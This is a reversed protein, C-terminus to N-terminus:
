RHFVLGKEDAFMMQRYKLNNKSLKSAAVEEELLYLKQDWFTYGQTPSKNNSFVMVCLSDVAIAILAGNGAYTMPIKNLLGLIGLTIISTCFLSSGVLTLIHDNRTIKLEEINNEATAAQAPPMRDKRELLFKERKKSFAYSKYRVHMSCVLFVASFLIKAGEIQTPSLFNELDNRFVFTALLAIISLVFGLTTFSCIYRPELPPKQIPLNEPIHM